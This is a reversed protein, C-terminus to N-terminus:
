AADDVVARGALPQQLLVDVTPQIGGESTCFDSFREFRLVVGVETSRYHVVPVPKWCSPSHYDSGYLVVRIGEQGVTEARM